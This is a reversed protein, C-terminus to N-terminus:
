LQFLNNNNDNKRLENKKRRMVFLATPIGLLSGCFVNWSVLQMTIDIPTLSRAMNLTDRFVDTYVKMEPINSQALIDIQSEYANIVFGHDIFRFYIYHAVATLLAAFMYMFVTFVWAHLFSIGGGCVQNRYMRTYYYGMFPVCLTLGVFLFSLFPVTLGLPFLVFKLIWYGGMYTGFLMAYRQMYGKNETM